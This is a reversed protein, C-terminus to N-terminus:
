GDGRWGYPFCEPASVLFRRCAERLWLEIARVLGAAATAYDRLVAPRRGPPVLPQILRVLGATPIPTPREAAHLHRPIDAAVLRRAIVRGYGALFSIDRLEEM